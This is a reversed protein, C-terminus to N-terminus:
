GREKGDRRGRGGAEEGQGGRSQVSGGHDVVGCWVVCGVPGRRSLRILGGVAQAKECLIVVSAM